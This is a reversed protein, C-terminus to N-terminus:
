FQPCTCSFTKGHCGKFNFFFYFLLIVFIQDYYLYYFKLFFYFLLIVFIQDYYLYHTHLIKM